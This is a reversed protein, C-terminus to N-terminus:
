ACEETDKKVECMIKYITVFVYLGVKNEKITVYYKMTQLHWTILM